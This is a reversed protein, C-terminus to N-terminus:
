VVKKGELRKHPTHDERKIGCRYDTLMAANCKGKFQRGMVSINEFFREGHEDNVDALNEVFFTWIITSCM